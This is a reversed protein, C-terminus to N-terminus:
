QAAWQVVDSEEMEVHVDGMAAAAQHTLYSEEVVPPAHEDSAPQAPDPNPNAEPIPAPQEAPPPATQSPVVADPPPTLRMVAGCAPCITQKGTLNSAFWLIKGCKPCQTTFVM